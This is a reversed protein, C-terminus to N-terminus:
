LHDAGGRQVVGQALDGDVRRLVGQGGPSGVVDHRVPLNATTRSVNRLAIGGRGIRYLDATVCAPVGGDGIRLFLVINTEVQEIQGVFHIVIRQDLGVASTRHWAGATGAHDRDVITHLQLLFFDM